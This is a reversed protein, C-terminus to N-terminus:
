VAVGKSGTFGVAVVPEGVASTKSIPKTVKFSKKRSRFILYGIIALVLM